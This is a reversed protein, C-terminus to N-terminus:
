YEVVVTVDGDKRLVTALTTEASRQFYLDVQGGAIQIGRVTVERLAQPLTPRVVRLQRNFGDPRIGLAQQLLYPISGSAWAQPSCAVPYRVPEASYSRDFGCFTEPLRFHEFRAAAEILADFVRNGEAPAACRYMGAAVFATDHPWVSGVQYDIPNYSRDQSSLTRIGWGTFMDEQMVRRVIDKSGDPAVIGTWLTQAANSAISQSFQGDAQRCLAYYSLAPLRFQANFRQRLAGARRRLEAARGADGDRGLLDAMLLWALYTEGQVEPLAIPPEALRGDAMVIANGSDKWGQNRLGKSSHTKYDIFGDGDSDGYADIWGLAAEVNPRLEHFLDLNGVWHAYLGLVILYLLTSDVSGYYPTQPIEGLNAMEGVRLEHLIKGPQEDRYDDIKTGQHSTLVRLTNEAVQPQFAAMQIATILSDRGFLAVYWPIGAAYFSEDFQHMALVHLDLLSRTVMENFLQNDTTVSMEGSLSGQRARRLARPGLPTFDTPTLELAGSNADILEGIIQCRWEQGRALSIHYRCCADGLEDPHPAFHLTLQRRHGDAGDYRLTLADGEWQPPQLTGRKGLPAGRVVFMDEFDAGYSLRLDFELPRQRYNVLTLTQLYANNLSKDRRISISDKEIRVGGADDFIDPNTLQITTAEGGQALGNFLYVPAKGEITLYEESLYRMDHFYLGLDTGAAIEGERTATLFINGAKIAVADPVRTAEAAHGLHLVDDYYSQAESM